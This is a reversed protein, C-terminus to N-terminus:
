NMDQSTANENDNCLLNEVYPVCSVVCRCCQFGGDMKQATGLSVQARKMAIFSETETFGCSRKCEACYKSEINEVSQLSEWALLLDTKLSLIHYLLTSCQLRHKARTVAVYLLNKEDNPANELEEVSCDLLFDEGLRVTDFELGKSKHATSFVIEAQDVDSCYQKKIREIHMPIQINHTEVIKIKGILEPDPAKCAYKKLEAFTRFRQIFKDKIEGRDVIGSYLKHIDLIRDLNYGQIGGAFGIRTKNNRTCTLVANNFLAFNTRCIVAIQGVHDGHFGGPKSVGVISKNRVGKLIDLLSSAVSAIESGFRFSQTLYYVHTAEVRAMANTAGRFGYIQQHPDGVLIKALPQSLLIDAVAPTCDQAEDVLICDFNRIVPKSLQYLKLYVDHTIRVDTNEPDSMRNWIEKSDGVVIKIYKDSNFFELKNRDGESEATTIDRYPVHESSLRDDYSCIFNTLTDIVRKAHLFNASKEDLNDMINNVRLSSAMKRRFKYGVAKYALSHVTRSEVNNPFRKVAQEQVSKNYAVNLFKWSPRLKTYEVLTTTKGTGAFAVIKLVDGHKTNHNMIRVQEHTLWTADSPERYKLICQQGSTNAAYASGLSCQTCNSTNEYLYLAYYIRYHHSTFRKTDDAMLVFFILALCHLCELIDYLLCTSSKLLCSIIEQIDYVSNSVLCLLGIVSWCCYPEQMESLQMYNEILHYKSHLCLMDLLNSHEARSVRFKKLFKCLRNPFYKRVHLQEEIFLEKIEMRSEFNYKYCYYRKKWLLFKDCSIIRCWRKCVLSLNTLLDILALQCFIAELIEDPLEAFYDRQRDKDMEQDFCADLEDEDSSTIGFLGFTNLSNRTKKDDVQPPLNVSSSPSAQLEAQECAEIMDLDNVEIEFDNTCKRKKPQSHRSSDLNQSVNEDYQPFLQRKAATCNTTWRVNDNQCKAKEQSFSLEAKECCEIIELESDSCDDFLDDKESQSLCNESSKGNDKRHKLKEQSLSLEARECCAILESEMESEVEGSNYGYKGSIQVYNSSTGQAFSKSKEANEGKIWSDMKKIKFCNPNSAKDFPALLTQRKRQVFNSAIGSESYSAARLKNPSRKPSETNKHNTNVCFLKISKQSDDLDSYKRTKRTNTASKSM